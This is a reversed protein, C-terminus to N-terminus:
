FEVVVGWDVTVASISPQPLDYEFTLIAMEDDGASPADGESEGDGGPPSDAEYTSARRVGDIM